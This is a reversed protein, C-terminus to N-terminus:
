ATFHLLLVIFIPLVAYTLRTNRTNIDGSLLFGGHEHYILVPRPRLSALALNAFFAHEHCHIIDFRESLLFKRLKRFARIDHGSRAGLEIVSIKNRDILDIMSGDGGLISGERSLTALSVEYKQPNLHRTLDIVIRSPGGYCRWVIHLVRIPM